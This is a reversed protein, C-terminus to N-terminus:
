AVYIGFALGLLKLAVKINNVSLLIVINTWSFLTEVSTSFKCPSNLSPLCYFLAFDNEMNCMLLTIQSLLEVGKQM